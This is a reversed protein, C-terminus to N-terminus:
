WLSEAVDANSPSADSTTADGHDLVFPGVTRDLHLLLRTEKGPKLRRQPTFDDAYVPGESIRVEDIWGDFPRSAVGARDPDAGIYLPLGNTKRPGSGPKSDVKKGNVYLRVEKGDYVGALHTWADAAMKTASKVTVYKGGLHIDFQPVGEDNFFAFESSETKAIIGTYGSQTGPRVWAELTMPGTSLRLQSADVRVARRPTGVRLSKKLDTAFYDAPVVSPRLMIPMTVMPLDIRAKTAVYQPAFTVRPLGPFEDEGSAHMLEFRVTAKKGPQIDVHAHDLTSKWGAIRSDPDLALTGEVRRGAANSFELVVTGSCSNSPDILLADSIQKPRTGRALNVQELFDPTFQKPDMVAGVPIAAVTVKDKRVTVVNFHHLYGAAPLDASLHGGTTALAYYQIGDRTGEYRMQHIHGAFVGSVNGATKLREHVIDWSDGYGKGIWRPHHLFVLVHDADSLSKLAGDLFKLQQPSMKQLAPESFSKRNTKPDGEDSYLVIFGTNKHKFYYWLPGFHKEYNGDHQGQPPPTSGRWYVDHNGAVPFWRMNLQNMIKKYERMQPMWEPTANYGQILDGVTMVLDPDLLNTDNVAQRLVKLGAPVGGTRDGYIIFQFGDAPRMPPLMLTDKRDTMIVAADHGHAHDHDHSHDHDPSIEAPAQQAFVVIPAILVGMLFM